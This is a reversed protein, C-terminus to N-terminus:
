TNYSTWSKATVCFLGGELQRVNDTLESALYQIIEDPISFGNVESKKQLIRVRTKFDPPDINSILSCLLHSQLKGNLKPIDRPLLCSTFFIKKGAELLSDLIFALEIQTRDKGTLHHIDELLLVDCQNRYKNKFKDITGNRFSQVMDNTFDEATIYYVRISPFSSLIHQGIAQALHSKGMGTNSLLFLSNSHINRQSALALSASYAFNNNEGVVFQDFTFDKKLMRGSHAIFNPLSLQFNLHKKQSSNGNERSVVIVLKRANGSLRSIESEILSGYHEQIRKKYLFNPCFLVIVKDNSEKHELPEIWMRYSHAPIRQKITEKVEKWIADM